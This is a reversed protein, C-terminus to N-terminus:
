LSQAGVVLPAKGIKVRLLGPNVPDREYLRGQISLHHSVAAPLRPGGAGSHLGQGVVVQAHLLTPQSTYGAWQQCWLKLPLM